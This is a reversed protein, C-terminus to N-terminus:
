KIAVKISYDGMKVIAINGAELSTALTATGSGVSRTPICCNTVPMKDIISTLTDPVFLANYCLAALALLVVCALQPHRVRGNM